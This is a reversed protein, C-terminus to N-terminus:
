RAKAARSVLALGALRQGAARDCRVRTTAIVCTADGRRLAHDFCAALGDLWSEGDRHLQMAHGGGNTLTATAELEASRKNLLESEAKMLEAVGGRFADMVAKDKGSRVVVSDGKKIRYKVKQAAAM